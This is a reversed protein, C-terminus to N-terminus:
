SRLLRNLADDDAGIARASHLAAPRVGDFSLPMGVTGIDGDDDSPTGIIELAATQEHAVLEPTTQVDAAPIGSASLVDRWRARTDTLLVEGILRECEGRNELRAANTALGPDRAWEPHGLAAALKAFLEDNACSVILDGDSTPFARHPVIFSVGSGHRAGPNGDANYGAIAITNWAIATELLSSNVSAGADSRDRRVLAALIGIVSWMGTGFDVISVGARVAPGDAEGTLSMIGAFAQMLPDYGPEANLPGVHGFAGLECHILSPKAARLTAADLGYKASTGPRLNHVFVDAHEVILRHLKALEAPDKIDIRVMRKGRNIAHFAAGDGRWQSPGWSRSSDGTPREVKWVQAGLGALVHGAFPASASDGLEVVTIGSLPLDDTPLAPTESRPSDNM